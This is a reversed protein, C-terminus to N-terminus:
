RPADKQKRRVQERYMKALLKQDVRQFPDYEVKKKKSHKKEPKSLTNTSAYEYELSM